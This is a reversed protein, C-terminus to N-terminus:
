YRLGCRLLFLRRYKDVKAEIRKTTDNDQKVISCPVHVNRLADILSRAGTTNPDFSVVLLEDSTNVVVNNVGRTSRLARTATDAVFESFRELRLQIQGSALQSCFAADYGIETIMAAVEDKQALAADSVRDVLSCCCDCVSYRTADWEVEAREGILSVSVSAIGPKARVHREITAVCSACTM